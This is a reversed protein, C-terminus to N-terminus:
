GESENNMSGIFTYDSKKHSQRLRHNTMIVNPYLVENALFTQILQEWVTGAMNPGSINDGTFKEIRQAQEQTKTEHVHTEQAGLLGGHHFIISTKKM